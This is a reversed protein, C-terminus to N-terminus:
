YIAFFDEFQNLYKSVENKNAEEIVEILDNYVKDSKEVAIGIMEEFSTGDPVTM